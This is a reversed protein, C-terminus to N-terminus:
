KIQFISSTAMGQLSSLLRNVRISKISGCKGNDPKPCVIFTTVGTTLDPLLLALQQQQATTSEEADQSICQHPLQLTITLTGKSTYNLIDETILSSPFANRSSPILPSCSFHIFCKTECLCRLLDKV